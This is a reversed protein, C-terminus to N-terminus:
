AFSCPLSQTNWWLGRCGSPLVYSFYAALYYILRNM